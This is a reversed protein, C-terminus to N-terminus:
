LFYLNNSFCSTSSSLSCSIWNLSSIMFWSCSYSHMMCFMLDKKCMSLRYSFSLLNMFSIFPSSIYNSTDLILIDLCTLLINENICFFYLLNFKSTFYIKQLCHPSKAWSFATYSFWSKRYHFILYNLQTYKLSLSPNCNM